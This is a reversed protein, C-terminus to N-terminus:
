NRGDDLVGTREIREALALGVTRLEEIRSLRVARGADMRMDAQVDSKQQDLQKPDNFAMATLVGRYIDQDRRRLDAIRDREKLQQYAYLTFAFPQRLV